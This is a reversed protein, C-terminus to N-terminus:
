ICIQLFFLSIKAPFHFIIYMKSDKKIFFSFYITTHSQKHNYIPKKLHILTRFSFTKLQYLSVYQCHIVPFFIVVSFLKCSFMSIHVLNQMKQLYEQSYNTLIVSLIKCNLFLASKVQVNITEFVQFLFLFASFCKCSLQLSQVMEFYFPLQGVKQLKQTKKRCILTFFSSIKM